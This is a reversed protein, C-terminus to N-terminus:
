DWLSAATHKKLKRLKESILSSSREPEGSLFATLKALQSTKYSAGLLAWSTWLAKYCKLGSKMRPDTQSWKLLDKELVHILAPYRKNDATTRRKNLSAVKAQAEKSKLRILQYQQFDTLVLAGAARFENSMETQAFEHALEFSFDDEQNFLVEFREYGPCVAIEQKTAHLWHLDIIVQDVQTELHFADDYKKGSGIAPNPRASPALLNRLNLEISLQLYRSRIADYERHTQFERVVANLKRQNDEYSDSLLFEEQLTRYETHAKPECRTSTKKAEVPHTEASLPNKDSGTVTTTTPASKPEFDELDKLIAEVEEEAIDESDGAQPDAVSSTQVRSTASAKFQALVKNTKEYMSAASTLLRRVHSLAEEASGYNAGLTKDQVHHLVDQPLYDYEAFLTRLQSSFTTAPMPM